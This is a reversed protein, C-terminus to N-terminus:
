APTFDEKNLSAILDPLESISKVTFRAGMSQLKMISESNVALGVGIAKLAEASKMDVISDGVVIAEEPKVGLKGLVATLHSADPKVDTATERTVVADFFQKLRFNRLINQTSKEGNITFIGLKLKMQKLIKLTEFTGPLLYTERAALLEYKEAISFVRKRTASFQDSLGNNRLYVRAKGLMEFISENVSLTSAPFGQNILFRRAEARVTKYELNFEALTGDLDFVIAKIKLSGLELSDQGRRRFHKIKISICKPEVLEHERRQM